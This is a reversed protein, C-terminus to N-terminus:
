PLERPWLRLINKGENLRQFPGVLADQKPLADGFFDRELGEVPITKLQHAARGVDLTLVLDQSISVEASEAEVNRYGWSNLMQWDELSMQPSVKNRLKPRSGTAREVAGVLVDPPTGGWPNVLYEGGPSFLNHDAYNDRAHPGSYPFNIHGARNNLFLNNRLVIRATAAGRRNTLKRHFSGFRQCEFVLNHVFRVGSADHTYLGDARPDQQHYSPRTNALVNNDILVPGQGLEVFVAGGRNGIVLNRSVRANRYVNDLWIGYAENDRILNDEILGDIFYHVKIGGIEPASHRNWNNREIVNGVIRTGFSRMGAIGCCGNDTVRNSRILHYGTNQPTPQNGELNTRGEYGCDIGISKAFRITNGEILWHHGARCGLAGAQPSDSRWFREPFQNACHEMMFGRVHIYGLGRRYPAFIRERTTVEVLRESPPKTGSPFHITLFTGGEDILWTAPTATIDQLNDVERLPQGDVFVQGLTLRRRGPAAKLATRFPNIREGLFMTSDLTGSYIPDEGAIKRWQPQWVDSGKIVVQERPAATYVIPQGEKGGRVPAVRERYVGAHVLVTDGPQALQAARHITRLPGAETGLNVDSANVHANNVVYTKAILEPAIPVFLGVACIAVAIQQPFDCPRQM